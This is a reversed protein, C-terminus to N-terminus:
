LADAEKQNKIAQCKEFNQFEYRLTLFTRSTGQAKAEIGIASIDGSATTPQKFTWIIAYTQQNESLHMVWFEPEDSGGSQFDVTQTPTGYKNELQKQLAAAEVKTAVGNGGDQIDKGIATIACVGTAPYAVLVYTEFDPRSKPLSKCLYVGEAEPSATCSPLSSISQGMSVGFPDSAHASFTAAFLAAVVIIKKM